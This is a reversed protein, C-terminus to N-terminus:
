PDADGYAHPKLTINSLDSTRELPRFDKPKVTEAAASALLFSEVERVQPSNPDIRQADDFQALAKTFEGRRHYLRALEYYPRAGGEGSNALRSWQDIAEDDRHLQTLTEAYVIRYDARDPEYILALRLRDAASDLRGRALDWKALAYGAEVAPPRCTWGTGFAAIAEHNRGLERLILGRVAHAEGNEPERKVVYDTQQLARDVDGREWLLRAYGVRAAHLSPALELAREYFRQASYHLGQRHYTYALFWNGVADDPNNTLQEKLATQVERMQRRSEFRPLPPIDAPIDAPKMSTRSLTQCGATLALVALLLVLRHGTM